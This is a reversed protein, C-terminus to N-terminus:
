QVGLVGCSSSSSSVSSGVYWNHGGGGKLGVELQPFVKALLDFIGIIGDM